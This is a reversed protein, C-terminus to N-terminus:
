DAGIEAISAHHFPFWSSLQLKGGQVIFRLISLANAFCFSMGTWYRFYADREAQAKQVLQEVSALQGTSNQRRAEGLQSKASKLKQTIRMMEETEKKSLGCGV